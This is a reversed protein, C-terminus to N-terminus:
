RSQQERDHPDNQEHSSERPADYWFELGERGQWARWPGRLVQRFITWLMFRVSYQRTKRGSTLVSERLVVFRGRRRLARSLHIEESAFYREDFGGVAEFDKRTCYVFCGAAIRFWRFATSLTPMLLRAYLPVVGDFRVGAGGGVAGAEIAQRAGQLAERTMMTDGDLFVFWDGRAVKAGENRVAAIQRRRVDLVRAGCARAIEATRDTSDDNVVIIEFGEEGCVCEAAERASGVAQAIMVEENHAPIVISLM